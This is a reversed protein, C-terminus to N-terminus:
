QKGWYERLADNNNNDLINYKYYIVHGDLYVNNSGNTHVYYPRGWSGGNGDHNMMYHWGTTKADKEPDSVYRRSDGLFLCSSINKLQSNKVYRRLVNGDNITGSVAQVSLTTANYGYALRGMISPCVGTKFDNITDFVHDSANPEKYNGLYIRLKSPWCKINKYKETNDNGFDTPAVAPVVYDNNDNSYQSGALGLQKLNSQCSASRAKDRASNLAPLLMAALIAIIAIVVLLEILTFSKSKM